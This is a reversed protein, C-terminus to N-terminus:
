KREGRESQCCIGGDCEWAPVSDELWVSAPHFGLGLYSAIQLHICKVTAKGLPAIGGVGGRRLADYLSPRYRMLFRKRFRRMWGLRVRAYLLHYAKWDDPAGALFSEMAAVGNLSELSGAVTALHQCLLWFLTPFPRAGKEAECAIVQPFGWGCRRSVGTIIAPSINLRAGM